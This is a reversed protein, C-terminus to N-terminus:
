KTWDWKIESLGKDVDKITKVRRRAVLPNGRGVKRYDRKSPVSLHRHTIDEVVKREALPSMKIFDNYGIGSDVILRDKVVQILM